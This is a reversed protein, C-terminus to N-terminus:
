NLKLPKIHDLQQKTVLTHFEQALLHSQKMVEGWYTQRQTLSMTKFDNRDPIKQLPLQRIFDKTPTLMVVNDYHADLPKRKLNKDFWGAKPQNTFHPYLVLPQEESGEFKSNFHYDILGGDRFVGPPAGNIHPIGPLLMPIAGSALLSQKINDPTLEVYCTDLGHLDSIVLSKVDAGIVIRKCHKNLRSREIRNACFANLLGFLQLLSVESSLLGQTRATIFNAKFIPNELIEKIGTDGLTKNVLAISKLEIEQATAGKPYDLAAYDDALRRIAAIPNAQALASFRFAGASSGILRLPTTRGNFFEGFLYCDLGFLTFWKPGGSAGLMTHFYDPHLGHRHIHSLATSGASVDLLPM